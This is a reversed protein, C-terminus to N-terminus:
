QSEQEQEADDDPLLRTSKLINRFSYHHGGVGYGEFGGSQSESGSLKARAQRFREELEAEIKLLVPLGRRLAAEPTRKIAEFARANLELEASYTSDLVTPPRILRVIEPAEKLEGALKPRLDPYISLVFHKRTLRLLACEVQNIIPLEYNAVKDFFGRLSKKVEDDKTQYYLVTAAVVSQEKRFIPQQDFDRTIAEFIDAPKMGAALATPVYVNAESHPGARLPLSMNEFIIPLPLEETEKRWKATEADMKESYLKYFHKEIARANEGASAGVRRILQGPYDRDLSSLCLKDYMAKLDDEIKQRLTEVSLLEYIQPWKSPLEAATFELIPAYIDKDLFIVGHVDHICTNAGNTTVLYKAQIEPHVCYQLGQVLYCDAFPYPVRKPSKAEVIWFMKKRITPVYDPIYTRDRLAGREVPPHRLKFASGDDGHRIVEYDKHTEYGLCELLPTVFKQEVFSEGKDTFDLRALGELVQKHKTHAM